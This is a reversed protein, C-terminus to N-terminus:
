TSRGADAVALSQRVPYYRYPPEMYPLGDQLAAAAQGVRRRVQLGWASSRASEFRDQGKRIAAPARTAARAVIRDRRAGRGKRTAGLFFCGAGARKRYSAIYFINLIYKHLM